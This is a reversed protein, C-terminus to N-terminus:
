WSVVGPARQAGDHETRPEADLAGIVPLASLMERARQVANCASHIEVALDFSFDTDLRDLELTTTKLDELLAVLRRDLDTAPSTSFQATASM